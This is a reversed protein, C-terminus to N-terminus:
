AEPGADFVEAPPVRVLAAAEDNSGLLWQEVDAAEIAVVSRKDQRDPPLAPFVRSTPRFM